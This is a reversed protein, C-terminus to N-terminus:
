PLGMVPQEISVATPDPATGKLFNDITNAPASPKLLMVDLRAIPRTGALAADFALTAELFIMASFEDLRPILGGLGRNFADTIKAGFDELAILAEQPDTGATARFRALRMGAERAHKITEAETFLLGTFRPDNLATQRPNQLALPQDLVAPDYFQAKNKFKDSDLLLQRIGAMRLALADKTPSAFVMKSRKNPDQFDWYTDDPMNLTISGNDVRIDTSVPLSGYVYVAPAADIAGYKSPDDFYCFQAFRRLAFQILRSMNLYADAKPNDPANFWAAVVKGPLSVDLSTLVSGLNGTGTKSVASSHNDLDGIWEHLSATDPAEPGGFTRTFYPGILPALQNQFQVDRVNKGAQRLSYAFTMSDALERDTVFTRVGAGANLKGTITLSSAWKHARIVSDTATLSYVFLRGKDEVVDMQALSTNIHDITDSFYPLV